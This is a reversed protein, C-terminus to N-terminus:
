FYYMFVTEFRNNRASHCNRVLGDSLTVDGYRALSHTYEVGLKWHPLNYSFCFNFTMLQDINLGTGYLKSPDVLSKDVGLNKTYGVFLSGQYTKGYVLNVWTTSHGFSTYQQEGTRADVETVGFGGLMTNHTQNEALLTKASVSFLEYSFKSHLEYSFSTLREDVRYTAFNATTSQRRPRISLAEAGGGFQFTGVRYDAGLYFEPVGSYKLYNETKGDVGQTLYVLQYLAAATLRFHKTGFQYNLQPSRNFPQFPSGTSLNLVTPIVDGFMPHWSQGLLLTSGSEWAMKLYIQRIRLMFNINNTGGFDTEVKASVKATGVDPGKIDVGFRTAFTYFSGNPVANLDKGDADLAIDKPYLYFLGDVGEVNDRTNYYLEGRVFGYLSFDYGSKQAKVSYIV